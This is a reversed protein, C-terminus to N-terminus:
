NLYNAKTQFSRCMQVAGRVMACFIKRGNAIDQPVYVSGVDPIALTCMGTSIGPTRRLFSLVGTLALRPLEQAIGM